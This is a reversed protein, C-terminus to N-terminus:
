ERTHGFVWTLRESTYSKECTNEHSWGNEVDIKYVAEFSDMKKLFDQVASVSMIRDSTGMVTYLPTKSTKMADLGTPNGAVPMAAAFVDPYNAIMNWTGTGGMSGGMVFLRSADALGSDTYNKILARVVGLEDGLWNKDSPCQPVLMMANKKYGKLFSLIEAVGAEQIQKENDSGKSTGGHLYVVLMSKGEESGTVVAKRYPLVSKDVTFVEKSFAVTVDESPTEQEDTSTDDTTTDETENTTTDETSDTEDDNSSQETNETTTQPEDPMPNEKSCAALSVISAALIFYFYFLHKM